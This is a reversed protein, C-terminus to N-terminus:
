LNKINEKVWNLDIDLYKINIKKYKLIIDNIKKSEEDKTWGKRNWIILDKIGFQIIHRLCDHCPSGSIYMKLGETGSPLICSLLASTEAHTIYNYKIPRELLEPLHPFGSLLSNYGTGCIRNNKDVIVAGHRTSDLSRLSVLFCIGLFYQDWNPRDM